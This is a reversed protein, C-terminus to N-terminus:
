GALRRMLEQMAMPRGLWFGQALDCNRERLVAYQGENEVGEAVVTIGLSHAMAIIASTLALDDPDRLVDAVFSRDIKVGDVPVRRLHSLGSFGTGFDDLWIKVGLARLRSLLASAQVEDGLVATETLEIHLREPALGSDKLTAAVVEPLDGGRLQRASINVSVFPAEGQEVQWRQADECARALVHRGLAEILGSQEAVDIFVAPPIVGHLPHQWRLLAEAGVLAGDALRFVPQYHLSLEGREWAGRLDQEMQVRREVAQNMAKSYFRYCNKGAVKAQYMAIDGNKLLLGAGAADHPFLTIGVSAGLFVERGLVEIPQQLELIIADALRSATARMDQGLILAVFEDGGFRAVEAGDGGIREVCQRIRTAFQALVEDGADHGLTDNVRKFDDVDLFLLALEGGSAQLTLLRQDLLERFALRNPLGTLSDGYAMRRIDRDHRDVSESMRKFARILDGLEDGRRTDLQVREYRGIEVARAAEALQRIPRVLGRSVLVLVAVGLATLAALLAALWYLNRQAIAGLGQRLLADARSQQEGVVALSFGLRVGGIREDGIFIPQTVDMTEASWQVRLSQAAIAGAAFPDDMPQGYGPIDSSGDHVVLGEADFVIVYAVDPQRLVSRSLEGITDLDFYYLPNAIAEALQSSLAAGRRRLGEMALEHVAERGIGALEEQSDEYQWWLAALVVLATGLVLALITLVRAQLGYRM